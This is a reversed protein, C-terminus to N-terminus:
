TLLWLMEFVSGKLCKWEGFPSYSHGFNLTRFPVRHPRSIVRACPSLSTQFEAVASYSCLALCVVWDIISEVLADRIGVPDTVLQGSWGKQPLPIRCLVVGM